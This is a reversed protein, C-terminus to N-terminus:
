ITEFNWILVYYLSLYSSCAGTARYAFVQATYDPPDDTGREVQHDCYSNFCAFGKGSDLDWTDQLGLIGLLYDVLSGASHVLTVGYDHLHIETSSLATAAWAFTSFYDVLLCRLIPKPQIPIVTTAPVAM